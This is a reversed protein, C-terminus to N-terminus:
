LPQLRPQAINGSIRFHKSQKGLLATLNSAKADAQLQITGSMAWLTPDAAATNLEGKGALQLTSGGNLEWQWAKKLDNNQLSLAYDGLPMHMPPMDVAARNWNLNIKGLLPHGNSANFQIHGNILANGSIKIPIPLRNTLLPQLLAIDLDGHLSQIDIIDAQQIAIASLRQGQWNIHINAGLHGSFLASWAPALKLSDLNIPSNLQASQISLQNIHLTFGDLQLSDYHITVAHRESQKNIQSKIWTEPQWRLAIFLLLAIMFVAVLMQWSAHKHQDTNTFSTM